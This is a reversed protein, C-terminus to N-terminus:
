LSLQRLRAIRETDRDVVFAWAGNTRNTTYALQVVFRLLPTQAIADVSYGRVARRGDIFKTSSVRPSIKTLGSNTLTNAFSTGNNKPFIRIGKLVSDSHSLGVLAEADFFLEILKTTEVTLKHCICPCVGARLQYWAGTM